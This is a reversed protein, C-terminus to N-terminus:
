LRNKDHSLNQDTDIMFNKEFFFSLFFYFDVSPRSQSAGLIIDHYAGGWGM